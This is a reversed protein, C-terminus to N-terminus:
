DLLFNISELHPTLRYELLDALGIADQQTQAAFMEKLLVMLDPWLEPPVTTLSQELDVSLAALKENAEAELGLRFSDAISQINPRTLCNNM